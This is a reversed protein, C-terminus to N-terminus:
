AARVAAVIRRARTELAPQQVRPPMREAMMTFSVALTGAFVGIRAM